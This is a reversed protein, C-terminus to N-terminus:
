IKTKHLGTSILELSNTCKCTTIGRRQRNLQLLTGYSFLPQLANNLTIAGVNYSGFTSFSYAFQKECCLASDHFGM